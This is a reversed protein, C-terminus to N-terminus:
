TARTREQDDTTRHNPLHHQARKDRVIRAFAHPPMVPYKDLEDYQARQQAGQRGRGGWRKRAM